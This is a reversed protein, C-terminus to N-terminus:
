AETSWAAATPCASPAPASAGTWARETGIALDFVYLKGDFPPDHGIDAALQTGDPSVAM